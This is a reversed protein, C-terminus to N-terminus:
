GASSLTKLLIFVTEKEALWDSFATASGAALGLQFAHSYNGEALFGALFGAVMSDGAGVAGKVSGQPAAARHVTGAADLLLAGQPGLSVLVNQAGRQQLWAAAAHLAGDDPLPSGALEELEARNPKILFPRLPLVKKLAAGQADVVFRLGRNQLRTMIDAYFSDPLGPPISGALVLTDGAALADLQDLLRDAAEAPIPPGATNIDTEKEARLKVNLRTMGTDLMLLQEDVGQAQILQRLHAGTFGAAFGLARNNTGLRSLMISVNLGKGGPVLAARKARNVRGPVFTGMDLVQDLSPNLTLTYVM